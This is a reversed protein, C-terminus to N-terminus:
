AREWLDLQDFALQTDSWLPRLKDGENQMAGRGDTWWIGQESITYVRGVAAVAARAGAAGM